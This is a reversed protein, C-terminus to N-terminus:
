RWSPAEAESAPQPRFGRDALVELRLDTGLGPTSPLEFM